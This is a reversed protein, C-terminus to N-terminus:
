RLQSWFTNFNSMQLYHICSIQQVKTQRQYFVNPFCENGASHHVNMHNNCKHEGFLLLKCAVIKRLQTIQNEIRM